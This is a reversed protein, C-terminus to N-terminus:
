GGAAMERFSIIGSEIVLFILLWVVAAVGTTVLFKMRLRPRAPASPAHGQDIQDPPATGWPLVAFLVLWWTILYVVVGSVVSM